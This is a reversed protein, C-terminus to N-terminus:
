IVQYVILHYIINLNYIMKLIKIKINLIHGTYIMLLQIDALKALLVIKMKQIEKINDMMKALILMINVNQDIELM